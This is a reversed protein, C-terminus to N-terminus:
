EPRARQAVYVLRALLTVLGASSLGALAGGVWVSTWTSSTWGRAPEPYGLVWPSVFIWVGAAVGIAFLMVLPLTRRLETRM